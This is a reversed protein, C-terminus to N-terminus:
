RLWQPLGNLGHGDLIQRELRKLWEYHLRLTDEDTKIAGLEYKKRSNIRKSLDGVLTREIGVGMEALRRVVLGAIKRMAMTVQDNMQALISTQNNSRNLYEFIAKEAASDIEDQSPLRDFRRRLDKELTEVIVKFMPESRIDSLRVDVITWSLKEPLEEYDDLARPERFDDEDDDDIDVPQEFIEMIKSGVFHSLESGTDVNLHCVLDPHRRVIRSGRGITQLNSITNNAPTLFSIETVDITDLGEGAMGVTILIDLTWPREGTLKDKEPCFAALVRDNEEDPRGNPGTGVWDVGFGDPLLSRVQDYICKAHSCSMARILMQTRINRCRLDILRDVPFTVLPSIYKPSFRMKRSSLFAEIADADDGGAAKALEETTFKHLHGDITVADIEYQYAHLSLRKVYGQAAANVYTESIQPEGFHDDGSYRKPTASMALFGAYCLNKIRGSWKAEEENSYHHHEDVVVFWQGTQMMDCVTEWTRQSLLSQVTVIYVVLDGRANARKAEATNAGVILARSSIGYRSLSYPISDAAQRAQDRRAVIYLMRNAVARHRLQAFAGAATETKGYAVPLKIILTVTALFAEIVERQKPRLDKPLSVGSASGSPEM